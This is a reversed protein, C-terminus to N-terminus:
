FEFITCILVMFKPFIMSFYSHLLEIKTLSRPELNSTNSTYSAKRTNFGFKAVHIKSSNERAELFM